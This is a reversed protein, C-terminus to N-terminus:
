FQVSDLLRQGLVLLSELEQVSPTQTWDTSVLITVAQDDVGLAILRFREGPSARWVEEGAVFLAVEGGALGGCAALAGDSVTVDVQQGAFGGVDVATTNEVTLHELGELAVLLDAAGPGTQAGEGGQVCPSAVVEEVRLFSVGGRPAADRILGFMDTGDRTAAWGLDVINFTVPPQFEASTYKGIPLSGIVVPQTTPAATASPSAGPNAVLQYGAVAAAIVIVFAAVSAAGLLASRPVVGPAKASMDRTVAYLEVPERIGKLRRRGRAIFGVPISAQTIDRVTSTVLVEGPRAVSCVRAALNVATGVYGEATEVAEGAHVGVGLGLLRHSEQVNLEAAADVIELGCMVASSASPFVAHIADGETKVEAGEYRAIARRAIELFRSVMAAAASNGYREAFATFGRLDSFLFGRYAAAGVDIRADEIMYRLHYHGTGVLVGVQQGARDTSEVPSTTATAKSVPRWDPLLRRLPARIRM